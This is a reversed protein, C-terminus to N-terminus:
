PNDRLSFIRDEGRLHVILKSTLCGANHESSSRHGFVITFPAGLTEELRQVLAAPVTSGGSCIAKVSSLDRNVFDPHEILAILMTPVGLMANAQYAEMLELVLGPEFMEVLILTARKEM